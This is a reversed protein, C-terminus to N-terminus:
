LKTGKEEQWKNNEVGTMGDTSGTSSHLAKWHEMMGNRKQFKRNKAISYTLMTM